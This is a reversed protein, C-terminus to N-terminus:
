PARGHKINAKSLEQQNPHDPKQDDAGFLEWACYSGRQGPNVTKPAAKVLNSGLYPTLQVIVFNQL